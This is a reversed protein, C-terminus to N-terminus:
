LELASASISNLTARLIKRTPLAAIDGLDFLIGRKSYRFDVYVVPHGFRGNVLFPHYQPTMGTRARDNPQGERTTACSTRNAPTQTPPTQGGSPPELDSQLKEWGGAPILAM